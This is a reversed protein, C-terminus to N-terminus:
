RGQRVIKTSKGITPTNKAMVMIINEETVNAQRLMTKYQSRKIASAGQKRLLVQAIHYSIDDINVLYVDDNKVFSVFGKDILYIIYQKTKGTAKIAQTLPIM